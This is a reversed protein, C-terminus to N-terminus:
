EEAEWKTISKYTSNKKSNKYAKPLCIDSLSCLNCNQKSEKEPTIGSLIVERMKSLISKIDSVTEKNSIYNLRKNIGEYYVQGSVKAKFMEEACIIQSQLQLEDPRNITKKDGSLPRGNKYEVINIEYKGQKGEILVGDDSKIFETYDAIGYIKYEASYLWLGRSVYVNGRSENFFPDSVKSHIMDGQITKYNSAWQKEAQLLGFRRKCYMFHQINRIQIFEDDFDYTM